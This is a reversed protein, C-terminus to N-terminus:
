IHIYPHYIRTEFKTLPTFLSADGAGWGAFVVTDGCREGRHREWGAAAGTGRAATGYAGCHHGSDGGCEEECDAGEGQLAAGERPHTRFQSVLGYVSM